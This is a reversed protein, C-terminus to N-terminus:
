TPKTPSCASRCPFLICRDGFFLRPLFAIKSQLVSISSYQHSSAKSSGEPLDYGIKLKSGSCSDRFFHELAPTDGPICYHDGVSRNNSIRSLNLKKRCGPKIRPDCSYGALSKGSAISRKHLGIDVRKVPPPSVAAFRAQMLHKPIEASM